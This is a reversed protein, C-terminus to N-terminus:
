RMINPLFTAIQPFALLIILCAYITIIFPWVGKFVINLPIKSVGSVVYSSVGLPPTIGGLGGVIVIIVGFWIPDFGLQLVLPFFIPITLVIMALGDIFMGLIGYVIFIGIMVAFAPVPLTGIWKNITQPITSVVLFHGFVMATTVILLIFASTKTTDTLADYIGKWKLRRGALGVLLVAFAGAAGAETPTFFGVMLGGMVLGFIILAEGTGGPISLVAEKLSVKAERPALGPNLSTQIYITVCYLITLLIGPLIGAIFLKGISVGTIVGYIIFVMSPPILPGLINGAAVTGSALSMDYNHKKMEPISITAMTAATASASGCVAGFAACAIITAMALGGRVHGVLKDATNYLKQSIGSYFAILGMLVFLPIVSLSYSNFNSFIDTILLTFSGKASVLYAFGSLGVVGLAYAVPM